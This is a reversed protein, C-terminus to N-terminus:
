IRRGRFSAALNPSKGSKFQAVPESKRLRGMVRPARLPPHTITGTPPPPSKEFLSRWISRLPIPLVVMAFPPPPPSPGSQCLSPSLNPAVSAKLKVSVVRCEGVLRGRGFPHRAVTRWKASNQRRTQTCYAFARSSSSSADSITTLCRALVGSNSSSFTNNMAAIPVLVLCIKSAAYDSCCIKM